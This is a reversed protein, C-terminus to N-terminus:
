NKLVIRKFYLDTDDTNWEDSKPLIEGTNFSDGKKQVKDTLIDAQLGSTM